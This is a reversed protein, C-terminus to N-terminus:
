FSSPEPSPITPDWRLLSYHDVWGFLRHQSIAPISNFPSRLDEIYDSQLRRMRLREGEGDIAPYRADHSHRYKVDNGHNEFARQQMQDQTHWRTRIFCIATSIRRLKSQPDNARHHYNNMYASAVYQRFLVLAQWEYIVEGYIHRGPVATENELHMM